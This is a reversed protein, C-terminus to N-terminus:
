SYELLYDLVSSAPTNGNSYSTCMVRVTTYIKPFVRTSWYELVTGLQLKYSHYLVLIPHGAKRILTKFLIMEFPFNSFSTVKDRTMCLAAAVGNQSSCM